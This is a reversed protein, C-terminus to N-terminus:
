ADGDQEGAALLPPTAPRDRLRRRRIRVAWREVFQDIGVGQRRVLDVAESAMGGTSQAIIKGIDTQTVLADLDMRSVVENLDIKDMLAQLDVRALVADMDVKDIIAQIDVRELLKEVDVREMVEDLQILDLAVNMTKGTYDPLASQTERIAVVRVHEGHVRAPEVARRAGRLINRIPAIRMGARAIAAGTDILRETADLAVRQGEVAAGLAADGITGLTTDKRQEGGLIEASLGIVITTSQEVTQRWRPQASVIRAM